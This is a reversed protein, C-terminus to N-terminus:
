NLKIFRQTYAMVGAKISSQSRPELVLEVSFDADKIGSFKLPTM